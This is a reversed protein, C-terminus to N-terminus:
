TRLGYLKITGSAITNGGSSASAYFRLGNVVDARNAPLITGGFFVNHPTGTTGFYTSTGTIACPRTTSNVNQLNANITIGEGVANGVTSYNYLVFETASNSNFYASSSMAGVERGYISGTQITGGVFVQSYFYVGDVVPLFEAQIIYTNYSSNIYTSSIDYEAVPSSITADLLLNMGSGTVTGSFAFTDALNIGDAQVKTLAM